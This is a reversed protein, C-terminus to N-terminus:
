AMLVMLADKSVRDGEKVLIKKIKGDFPATIQNYMKMAELILIVDGEKVKSGAALLVKQITGPIFAKLEKENPIEYAKRNKYKETLKTKYRFEEVTFDEFEQKNKSEMDM